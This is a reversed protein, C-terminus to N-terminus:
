YIEYLQTVEEKYLNFRTFDWCDTCMKGTTLNKYQKIFCNEAFVIEYKTNSELGPYVHGGEKLVVIDGKIFKM